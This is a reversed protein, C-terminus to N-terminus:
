VVISTSTGTSLFCKRLHSPLTTHSCPTYRSWHCRILGHTEHNTRLPWWIPTEVVVQHFFINKSRLDRGLDSALNINGPQLRQLHGPLLKVATPESQPIKPLMLSVWMVMNVCGLNHQTSHSGDLKLNVCQALYTGSYSDLHRCHESHFLDNWHFWPLEAFWLRICPWSTARRQQLCQAM